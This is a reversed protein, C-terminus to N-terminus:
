SIICESLQTYFQQSTTHVNIRWEASCFLFFRLLSLLTVTPKSTLWSFQQQINLQWNIIPMIICVRLLRLFASQQSSVRSRSSCWNSIFSWIIGRSRIRNRRDDTIHQHNFHLVNNMIRVFCSFFHLYHICTVLPSKGCVQQAKTDQLNHAKELQLRYTASKYESM